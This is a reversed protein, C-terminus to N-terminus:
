VNYSISASMIDAEIAILLSTMVFAVLGRGQVAGLINRIDIKRCGTLSIAKAM